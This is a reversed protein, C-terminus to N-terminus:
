QLHYAHSSFFPLYMEERLEALHDTFWLSNVCSGMGVAGCECSWKLWMGEWWVIIQVAGFVAHRSQDSKGILAAMLATWEESGPCSLNACGLRRSLTPGSLKQIMTEVNKTKLAWDALSNCVSMLDSATAWGMWTGCAPSEGMLGMRRDGNLEAMGKSVLTM